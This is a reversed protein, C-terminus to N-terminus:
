PADGDPSNILHSAGTEQAIARDSRTPNTILLETIRARKGEASLHRREINLSRILPEIPVGERRDALSIAGEIQLDGEMLMAMAACRNRGDALQWPDGDKARWLVLPNLLGNADIDAALSSLDDGDLLRYTEAKKAVTIGRRALARRWDTTNPGREEDSGVGARNSGALPAPNRRDWM